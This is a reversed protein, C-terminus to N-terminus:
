LCKAPIGITPSYPDFNTFIHRRRLHITGIQNKEPNHQDNHLIDTM